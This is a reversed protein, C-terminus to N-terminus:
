SVLLTRKTTLGSYTVVLTFDQPHKAVGALAVTGAANLHINTTTDHGEHASFSGRGLDVTETKHITKKGEKVAVVPHETLEASGRCTAVKCGLNVSVVADNVVAQASLVAVRPAPRINLTSAAIALGTPLNTPTTTPVPTSTTTPTTTPPPPAAGVSLSLQTSTELPPTSADSATVTVTFTGSVTPSGTIAGTAANLSLGSPLGSASWLYPGTGGAAQVGASYGSGATAGPLPATSVTLPTVALGLTANIGSLTQGAALPLVNASGFSAKSNYWSLVFDSTQFSSCTPDFEVTLSDAPLNALTYGGSPTTGVLNVYYGDAGYAIVCIGQADPAGPATVTGSISGGAVLAGNISSAGSNPAALTVPTAAGADPGGYWGIALSSVATSRCSPDFRVKYTVPAPLSSISYNGNSDTTASGLNDGGGDPNEAYVDVCVKALGVAGSRVTGAITSGLILTADATAQTANGLTIPHEYYPDYASNWFQVAYPSTQTENCTPDFEVDYTDSPLNIVSYAGTPGTVGSFTSTSGFAYVCINTVPAGNYTVSGTISATSAAAAPAAQIMVGFSSVTICLLPALVARRWRPSQLTPM